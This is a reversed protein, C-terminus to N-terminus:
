RVNKSKEQRSKEYHEVVIDITDEMTSQVAECLKGDSNRWDEYFESLLNDEKLLAKLENEDFTREKLEEIIGEMAVLQYSNEIIEDPMGKKIENKFKELENEVKAYLKDTLEKIKSIKRDEKCENKIEQLMRKRTENANNSFFYKEKYSSFYIKHEFKSMMLKLEVEIESAFYESDSSYNVSPITYEKLFIGKTNKNMEEKLDQYIQKFIQETKM